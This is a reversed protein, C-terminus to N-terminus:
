YDDSNKGTRFLGSVALVVSLVIILVVTFVTLLIWGLRRSAYALRAFAHKIM